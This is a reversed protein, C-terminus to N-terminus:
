LGILPFYPAAIIAPTRMSLAPVTSPNAHSIRTLARAEFRRWVNFHECRRSSVGHFEREKRMLSRCDGLLGIIEIESQGTETAQHKQDDEDWHDIEEEFIATSFWGIALRNM